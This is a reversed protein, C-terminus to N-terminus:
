LFLKHKERRVSAVRGGSLMIDIYAGAADQVRISSQSYTVTSTNQNTDTIGSLRGSADFTLRSGASDQLTYGDALVSLRYGLGDEDRFLTGDKIFYHETGDADTYVYPYDAAVAAPSPKVTQAINLRWGKGCPIVGDERNADYSNYVHSVSVPNRGGPTSADPHVFVLNGTHDNVRASGARGASQSHFSWYDELGKANRYEVILCPAYQTTTRDNYYIAHATPSSASINERVGRLVFGFNSSNGEACSVLEDAAYWQKVAETM